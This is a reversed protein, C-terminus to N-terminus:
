RNYKLIYDDIVKHSCRKCTQFKRRLNEIFNEKLKSLVMKSKKNSLFPSKNTIVIPLKELIVFHDVLGNELVTAFKKSFFGIIKFM